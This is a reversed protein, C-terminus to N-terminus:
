KQKLLPIYLNIPNGQADKTIVTYTDAVDYNTIAKHTSFAKNTNNVLTTSSQLLRGSKDLGLINDGTKLTVNANFYGETNGLRKVILSSPTMGDKWGETTQFKIAELNYCNEIIWSGGEAKFQGYPIFKWNELKIVAPGSISHVQVCAAMQSYIGKLNVCGGTQRVRILSEIKTPDGNMEVHLGDVDFSTVTTSGGFDHDIVHKCEVGEMVCNRIYVSNSGKTRLCNRTDTRGIFFRTDEITWVNSQSNTASAGILYQPSNSTADAQATRFLVGESYYNNIWCSSIRGQLSFISHIAINGASFDCNDLLSKFTCALLLQNNGGRFGLDRIIVRHMSNLGDKVDCTDLRKYEYFVKGEADVRQLKAIGARLIDKTKDQMHIQANNGQILYVRDHWTPYEITDDLYYVYGPNLSVVIRRDGSEKVSDFMLNFAQSWTNNETKFTEPTLIM